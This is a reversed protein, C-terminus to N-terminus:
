ADSLWQLLLRAQSESDSQSAFRCRYRNKLSAFRTALEKEAQCLARGEAASLMQAAFSLSAELDVYGRCRAEGDQNQWAQKWNIAPDHETEDFITQELVAKGSDVFVWYGSFKM